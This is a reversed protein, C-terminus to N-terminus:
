ANNQLTEIAAPGLSTFAAIMTLLTSQRAIEQLVAPQQWLREEEALNQGTYTPGQGLMALSSCAAMGVSVASSLNDSELCCDLTRDLIECTALALPADFEETDPANSIIQRSYRKGDSRSLKNGKLHEWVADLSDRFVDVRGWGEEQAFTEYHPLWQEALVAAFATRQHNNWSTMMKELLRAHETEAQATVMGFKEGGGEVALKALEESFQAKQLKGLMSALNQLISGQPADATLNPLNLEPLDTETKDAANPGIQLVFRTPAVKNNQNKKSM